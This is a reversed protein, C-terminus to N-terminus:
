DPTGARVLGSEYAYVVAQVRDRLDLKALIRSVHTKVTGEGIYIHAAIESNSLGRALHALVERERDTLTDAALASALSATGTTGTTGTPSAGATNTGVFRELLRRTVSPAVVADGAAVTRIASLLDAALTDKLLFGSAGARLSAYVYEDLDFTTLMLIRTHGPREACIRRTAQVGDTEPMRVDMLVIDPRLDLALTAAEAGDAAEAVVEMDPANELIMRFGTRVLAQDDAILVQIM